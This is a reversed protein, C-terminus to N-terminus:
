RARQDIARLARIGQMWRHSIRRGFVLGVLIPIGLLIMLIFVIGLGSMFNTEEMTSIALGAGLVLSLTSVSVGALLVIPGFVGGTLFPDSPYFLFWVITVLSQIVFWLWMDYFPAGFAALADLALLILSARVPGAEGFKGIVTFTGLLVGFGVVFLGITLLIGM